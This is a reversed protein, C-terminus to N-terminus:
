KENNAHMITGVGTKVVHGLVEFIGAISEVPINFPQHILTGDEYKENNTSHARIYEPDDTFQVKKTVRLESTEIVYNKGPIILRRDHVEKLALICGSPYEIMSDEYHRVAHTANKFWGGLDIWESASSDPQMKASYGRELKGGITSVDDYLPILRKGPPKSEFDYIQPGSDDEVDTTEPQANPVKTDVIRTQGNNLMMSDNSLLWAINIEPFEDAIKQAVTKSIGTKGRQIDYIGQVNKLGIRRAFDSANLSCYELLKNIKESSSM